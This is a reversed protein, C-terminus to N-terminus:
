APRKADPAAAKIQDRTVREGMAESVADVGPLGADTWHKDNAADLGEVAARILENRDESDSDGDHSFTFVEFRKASDYEAQTIEVGYVSQGGEVRVPPTANLMHPGNSTNTADTRIINTM